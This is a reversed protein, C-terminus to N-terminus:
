MGVAEPSPLISYTDSSSFSGLVLTWVGVDMGELCGLSAILITYTGTKVSPRDLESELSSFSAMAYILVATGVFIGVLIGEFNGVSIGLALGDTVGEALGDAEGVKSGEPKGEEAGVVAGDGVGDSSRQHLM